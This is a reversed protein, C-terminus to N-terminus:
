VTSRIAMTQAFVAEWRAAIQTLHHSDLTLHAQKAMHQRMVTDTMMRQLAQQLADPSNPPVLLGNVQHQILERPGCHVDCAISPVGSALAELLANPYGEYRSTMVFADARAMWDNVNGVRGPLCVRDQLGLRDVLAQLAEHLPGDGVIALQWAQTASSTNEAAQPQIADAFAHLLQDFQKNEVLRGVALLLPVGPKLWDQPSITPRSAPLPLTVPNPIAGVARARTHKSLWHAADATQAVVADLCGNLAWRALRHPRSTYEAPPYSREAGICATNISAGLTLRTLALLSNSVNMFSLVVDLQAGRLQQRLRRLRRLNKLLAAWLHPSQQLDGIIVRQVAPTIQYADSDADAFTMLQVCLGAQAWHNALLACVREAGGSQLTPILLGVRLTPPETPSM